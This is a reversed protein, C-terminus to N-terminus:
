DLWKIEKALILQCQSFLILSFIGYYFCPWSPGAYAQYFYLTSGFLKWLTLFVLWDLHEIKWLIGFAAWSCAMLTLVWGCLAFLEYASTVEMSTVKGISVFIWFALDLLLWGFKLSDYYFATLSAKWDKSAKPLHLPLEM